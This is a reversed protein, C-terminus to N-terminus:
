ARAFCGRVRSLLAYGTSSFPQFRFWLHQSLRRLGRSLEIRREGREVAVVKGLVETDSIWGDAQSRWDGRILLRRAEQQGQEAVVRHVVIKGPSDRYLVVDGVRVEVQAKPVVSLVDGDCIWPVMSGGRARFRLGYGQGLIDRSLRCFDPGTCAIAGKAGEFLM